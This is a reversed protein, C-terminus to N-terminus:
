NALALHSRQEKIWDHQIYIVPSICVCVNIYMYLCTILIDFCKLHSIPRFNGNSYLKSFFKKSKRQKHYKLFDFLIYKSIQCGNNSAKKSETEESTDRTKLFSHFTALPCDRYGSWWRLRLNFELGADQEFPGEALM